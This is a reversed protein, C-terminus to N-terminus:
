WSQIPVIERSIPTVPAMANPDARMRATGIRLVVDMAEAITPDESRLSGKHKRQWWLKQRVLLTQRPFFDPPPQDPLQALREDVLRFARDCACRFEEDSKYLKETFSENAGDCPTFPDERRLRSIIKELRARRSM